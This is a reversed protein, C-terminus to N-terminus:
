HGLDLKQVVFHLLVVPSLPDLAQLLSGARMKLRSGRLAERFADVTLGYLNYM